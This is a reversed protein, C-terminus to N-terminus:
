DWAPDVPKPESSYPMRLAHERLDTAARRGGPINDLEKLSDLLQETGSKQRFAELLDEFRNM